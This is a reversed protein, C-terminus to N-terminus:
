QPISKYINILFQFKKYNTYISPNADRYIMSIFKGDIYSLAGPDTCFDLKKILWIM